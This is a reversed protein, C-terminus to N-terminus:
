QSKKRPFSVGLTLAFQEITEREREWSSCFPSTPLPAQPHSDIFQPQAGIFNSIGLTFFGLRFSLATRFYPDFDRQYAGTCVEEFTYSADVLSGVDFSLLWSRGLEFRGQLGIAQITLFAETNNTGPWVIGIDNSKAWLYTVGLGLVDNWRRGFEAHVETYKNGFQSASLGANAGGYFAQAPLSSSYISTILVFFCGKFLAPLFVSHM